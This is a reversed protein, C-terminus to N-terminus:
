ALHAQLYKSMVIIIILAIVTVAHSPLSARFPYGDTTIKM